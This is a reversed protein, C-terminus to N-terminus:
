SVAPLYGFRTQSSGLGVDLIKEVYDASYVKWEVADRLAREVAEDGHIACLALIRRVHQRANLKRDELERWFDEAVPSLGLFRKLLRQEEAKRREALLAKPHEPDEIDKNRGYSRLHRAVLKEGYYVCIVKSYAKVVMGRSAYEAPVSYHNTDVTVRFQSSSRVPRPIAEDFPNAPLPLLVKREQEFMDVPRKKTTGHIRVNAIDKLWTKVGDQLADLCPIQLGALFNKKLYGVGNEVRGKEQPQGVGCPVIKFGFHQAFEIYKPNLVPEKGPERKIVATKLNDVMIKEPVGGFFQFAEEQGLLFHEMAQSLSFFVYMMRSYALVM